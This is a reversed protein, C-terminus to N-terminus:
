RLVQLHLSRGEQPRVLLEASTRELRSNDAYQSTKRRHFSVTQVVALGPRIWGYM